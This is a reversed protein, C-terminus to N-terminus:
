EVYGIENFFLKIIEAIESYISSYYKKNKHKGGEPDHIGTLEEIIFTINNNRRFIASLLRTLIISEKYFRLDKTNLFIEIPYKKDEVVVWSLTIFISSNTFASELKYVKANVIKDRQLM